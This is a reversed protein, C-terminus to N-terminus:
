LDGFIQNLADRLMRAQKTTLMHTQEIKTGDGEQDEQTIFVVDDPSYQQVIVAECEKDGFDESLHTDEPIVVEKM